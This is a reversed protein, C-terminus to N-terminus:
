TASSARPRATRRPSPSAQPRHAARPRACGRRRARRGDLEGTDARDAGFLLRALETRGSGLLGALGVVEGPTSTSTSRSSRARAARPRDAQLYPSRTPGSPSRRAQPAEELEELVELERGIMKPVLELRPLEATRYEGVLRGNRLVTM